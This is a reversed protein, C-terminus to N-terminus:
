YNYLFPVSQLFQTHMKCCSELSTDLMTKNHRIHTIPFIHGPMQDSHVWPKCCEVQLEYHAWGTATKLRERAVCATYVVGHCPVLKLCYDSLLNTVCVGLIGLLIFNFCKLDESFDRMQKKRLSLHESPFRRSSSFAGTLTVASNSTQTISPSLEAACIM